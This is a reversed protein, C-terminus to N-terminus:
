LFDALREQSSTLGLQEIMMRVFIGEDKPPMIVKTLLKELTLEFYRVTEKHERLLQIFWGVRYQQGENELTLEKDQGLGGLADFCVQLWLRHRLEIPFIDLPVKVGEPLSLDRGHSELVEVLTPWGEHVAWWMSEDTRFPERLIHPVIRRAIEYWPESPRPIEDIYLIRDDDADGFSILSDLAKKQKKTLTLGQEQRVVAEWQLFYGTKIDHILNDLIQNVDGPSDLDIYEFYDRTPVGPDPQAQSQAALKSRKRKSRVM